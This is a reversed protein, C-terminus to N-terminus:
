FDRWDDLWDAAEQDTVIEPRRRILESFADGIEERMITDLTYDANLRNFAAAFKQMVVRVDSASASPDLKDIAASAVNYIRCARSGITEGHEGGWMFFPNELNQRIWSDTRRGRISLGPCGKLRASLKRADDARVGDFTLNELSPFAVPLPFDDARFDYCNIMRIRRLRSFTAISGIDEILTQPGRIDLSELATWHAFVAFRIRAAHWINLGSILDLGPVAEPTGARNLYWITLSLGEGGRPDEVRLTDLSGSVHLTLASASGALPLRLLLPDTGCSVTVNTLSTKSLDIVSKGHQHWALGRISPRSALFSEIGADQGIYNIESLKQLQDLQSWNLKSDPRVCLHPGSSGPNIFVRWSDARISSPRDDLSITVEPYRPNM